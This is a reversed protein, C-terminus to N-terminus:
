QFNCIWSEAFVMRLFISLVIYLPCEFLINTGFNGSKGVLVGQLFKPLNKTLGCIEEL